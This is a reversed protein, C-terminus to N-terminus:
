CYFLNEFVFLNIFWKALNYQNLKIEAEIMQQSTTVGINGYTLTNDKYEGIDTTTSDMSTDHTTDTTVKEGNSYSESNYAYPQTTDTNTSHKQGRNITEVDVHSGHTIEETRRYNEIPNYELSLTDYSDFLMKKHTEVFDNWLNLFDVKPNSTINEMFYKGIHNRLYYKVDKTSIIEAGKYMVPSYNDIFYQYVGGNFTKLMKKM